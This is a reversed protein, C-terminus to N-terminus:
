RSCLIAFAAERSVPTDRELSASDRVCGRACAAVFAREDCAVISGDVCRYLEDEDCAAPSRSSLSRAVAGAGPPLACLQRLAVDREVVVDVEDAVCGQDCEGVREWPCKCSEASGKCPQAITALRSAEVIGGSCRALGDPCDVAWLPAAAPPKVGRPGVGHETFWRSACGRECAPLTVLLVLVLIGPASPGSRRDQAAV